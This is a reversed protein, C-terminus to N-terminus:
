PLASPQVQKDTSLAATMEPLFEPDCCIAYAAQNGASPTLSLHDAQMRNSTAVRGDPSLTLGDVPWVLGSSSSFRVRGVPWVSLRAGARLPMSFPQTTVHILDDAGILIVKHTGAYRALVSLTALMHDVRLGLFGYALCFPASFRQLAKELDTTEQDDLVIVDTQPCASALMCAEASDMDGVVAQPTLGAARCHRLGGDVAVLRGAPAAALVAVDCAGNGVLILPQDDCGPNDAIREPM